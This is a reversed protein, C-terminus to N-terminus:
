DDLVFWNPLKLMSAEYKSYRRKETYDLTNVLRNIQSPKSFYNLNCRKVGFSSTEHASNWLGHKMHLENSDYPECSDYARM